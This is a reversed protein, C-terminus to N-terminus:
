YDMFLYTAVKYLFTPRLNDKCLYLICAEYGSLNM